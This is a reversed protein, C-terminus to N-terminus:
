AEKKFIDTLTPPQQAFVKIYQGHTLQDFIEPGYKEDSITLKYLGDKEEIVSLVHPLEKLRSIALEAEVFINTNGFSSRVDHLNGNIVAYGDKLLVISDCLSEVNNMDHDSFIIAAGRKKEELITNRLIDVNIPDLGSFPEDLIILSPQHILTCILQVKQQNGKSLSSIKDNLNGKVKLKDMWVPLKQYIEKTSMNKLNALYRVQEKVTLKQILSREEPLYGIQDYDKETLPEGNWLITGTFTIFNLISHFTTTKGAGNKGIIGLIKGNPVEFNVDSLVKKAGFSKSLHDIKLMLNGKQFCKM